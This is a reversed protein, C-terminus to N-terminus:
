FLTCIDKKFYVFTFTVLCAPTVSERSEVQSRIFFTKRPCSHTCVPTYMDPARQSVRPIVQSRSTIKQHPLLHTQRPPPLVPFPLFDQDLSPIINFLVLHGQNKWTCPMSSYLKAHDSQLLFCLRRASVCQSSRVPTRRTGHQRSPAPLILYLGTFAGHCLILKKTVGRRNLTWAKDM